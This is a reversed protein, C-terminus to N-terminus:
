DVVTMAGVYIHHPCNFQFDGTEEPTFSLEQKDAASALELETSEGKGWAFILENGCGVEGLQRFILHVPIGKKVSFHAPNYGEPQVILTVEQVGQDNVPVEVAPPLSYTVPVDKMSSFVQSNAAPGLTDLIFQMETPTLINSDSLKVNIHLSGLVLEVDSLDCETQSTCHCNCRVVTMGQNIASIAASALNTTPNSPLWEQLILSGQGGRGIPYLLQLMPEGGPGSQSTDIQVEARGVRRPLYAPILAQFPLGIQAELVSEVEPAETPKIFSNKIWIYGPVLIALIVLGALFLGLYTPNIGKGKNNKKIPPSFTEM